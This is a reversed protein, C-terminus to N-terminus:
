EICVIGHIESFNKPLAFDSALKSASDWVTISCDIGITNSLGISNGSNRNPSQGVLFLDKRKALGRAFGKFSAIVEGSADVLNGRLSDLVFLRGDFTSISHPMRLDSFVPGYCHGTRWNYELVAGDYKGKRYNGTLSFMSVYVSDGQILVDNLHHQNSGLLHRKDSIPFVSLEEGRSDLIAVEDTGNYAVAITDGSVSLGHVRRSGQIDFSGLNQLEKGLKVVGHYESSVLYGDNLVALGHCPGELIQTPEKGNSLDQTSSKYLGSATDTHEGKVAGVSFLFDVNVSALQSVPIFQELHETIIMNDLPFGLLRAQKEVGSLDNTCVIVQTSAERSFLHSLHSVPHIELGHWSSGHLSKKNDIVHTIHKGLRQFIKEAVPSGAGWVVLAEARKELIDEYTATRFLLDENM